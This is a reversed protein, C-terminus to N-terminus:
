NFVRPGTVQRNSFLRSVRKEFPVRIILNNEILQVETDNLDPKGAVCVHDIMLGYNKFNNRIEYGHGRKGRSFRDDDFQKDDSFFQFLTFQSFCPAGSQVAQIHERSNDFLRGRPGLNVSAGNMPAYACGASRAVYYALADDGLMAAMNKVGQDPAGTGLSNMIVDTYGDILEKRESEYAESNYSRSYVETVFENFRPDAETAVFIHSTEERPVGCFITMQERHQALLENAILQDSYDGLIIM